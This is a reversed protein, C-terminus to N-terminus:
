ASIKLRAIWRDINEKDFLLKNKIKVVCDPPIEGYCKMNYLTGVPIDTYESLSDINMLKKEM